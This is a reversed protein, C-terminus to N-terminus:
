SLVEVTTNAFCLTPVVEGPWVTTNLLVPPDGNAIRPMEMDPSLLSSKAWVFVHPDLKDGLSVHVIMTKKLGRALPFLDPTILIVSLAAPLGCPNETLPMPMSGYASASPGHTGKKM